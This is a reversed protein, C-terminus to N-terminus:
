VDLATHPKIESEIDPYVLMMVCLRCIRIVCINIYFKGFMFFKILKSSKKKKTNVRLSSVRHWVKLHNIM